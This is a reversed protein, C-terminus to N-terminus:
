RNVICFLKAERALPMLQDGRLEVILDTRVRAYLDGQAYSMLVISPIIDGRAANWLCLLWHDRRYVSFYQKQLQETFPILSEQFQFGRNTLSFSPQLVFSSDGTMAYDSNAFLHPSSALLGVKGDRFPNKWAFISRDASRRIIEEQLRTFAKNGEGYLLPMNVDFLGLLCYAADEKRTTIRNGFWSMKQAINYKRLLRWKPESTALMNPPIGTVTSVTSMFHVDLTGGFQSWNKDFFFLWRPAILEQLTWGRSFWRSKGLDSIEEKSWPQGQSGAEAKFDALYVLCQASDRYWAFMSNIAETLEASSRKDICCTDVWTWEFGREKSVQACELIKQYGAKNQTGAELKNMEKFTVEDSGWTHSLITYPPRDEDFFEKFTLFTLDHTSLLRM